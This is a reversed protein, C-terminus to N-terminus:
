VISSTSLPSTPKKRWFLYLQLCFSVINVLIQAWLLGWIGYYYLFVSLLIVRLIPMAFSIIYLEKTKKQATLATMMMTAALSFFSLSYVQTFIISDSYTPFFTHFIFPAILAYGGAAVLILVILMWLRKKLIARVEDESKEALKPMAVNPIFKLVGALKEPLITAFSYVALAASGIFHFVLLADIQGAFTGLIGMASLHIGYPITELDREDNPKLHRLVVNYLVFSSLFVFLYNVVVVWLFNRAFYITLLVPIASVLNNFLGYYSGVRFMKKGGLYAVWTNFASGLPLFIAIWFFAIAFAHNDHVFYWLAVCMGALMPIIGAILQYRVSHRLEGEHGRAVARTVASNMGTLTLTGILSAISLVYQYMGYQEKTLYRAFLISGIITTLMVTAANFNGWFGGSALYVMDTKTYRESWRLMSILRNKM